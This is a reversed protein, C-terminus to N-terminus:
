GAGTGEHDHLKELIRSMGELLKDETTAPSMYTLSRETLDDILIETLEQEEDPRGALSVKAEELTNKLQLGYKLRAMTNINALAMTRLVRLADNSFGPTDKRQMFSRRIDSEPMTQLYMQYIDAKLEEIADKGLATASDLRTIMARLEASSAEIDTRLDVGNNGFTKREFEADPNPYEARHWDIFEKREAATEFTYTGEKKTKNPGRYVTVAHPGFRKAPVYSNREREAEFKAVVDNLLTTGLTPNNATRAAINAKLLDLRENHIDYYYTVTQKYIALAEAGNPAANLADKKAHIAIIDQERKLKKNELRTIQAQEQPTPAPGTTLKKLRIDLIKLASDTKIAVKLPVFTKTAPDYLIVNTASTLNLLDELKQNLKPSKRAFAEWSNLLKGVRKINGNRYQAIDVRLLKEVRAAAPVGAEVLKEVLYNYSAKKLQERIVRKGAFKLLGMQRKMASPSRFFDRMAGIQKYFRRQVRAGRAVDALEAGTQQNARARVAEGTMKPPTKAAQEAVRGTLDVLQEFATFPRGSPFGVLAGISKVLNTFATKFAGVVVLPKGDVSKGELAPM